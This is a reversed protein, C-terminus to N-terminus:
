EALLRAPMQMPTAPISAAAQARALGVAGRVAAEASELSGGHERLVSAARAAAASGCLDRQHMFLRQKM